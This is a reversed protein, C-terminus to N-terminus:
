LNVGKDVIIDFGCTKCSTEVLAVTRTGDKETIVANYRPCSEGELIPRVDPSIFYVEFEARHFICEVRIPIIMGYISLLDPVCEPRDILESSLTLM